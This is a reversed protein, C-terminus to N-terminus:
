STQRGLRVVNWSMPPLEVTLKEGRVAAGRALEPRVTDPEDATNCAHPDPGALLMHEVVHLQGLGSLVAHLELPQHRDRNVAFVVLEEREDHWVATAELAPVQGYRATELAPSEPEVRLVTGGRAHASAAAFPHFITQRWAPGGPETMIPAIANVLQALCAIRVRDANRLLTILLTGVVIADALNYVDEILRPHEAWERDVLDGLQSQYWVNWEDFSLNIRKDSRIKAQVHDCTAVVAGIFAEMDCASALFSDLDDGDPEYYAHLSIFDVVDYCQELVGAEWAAFTPMSRSSSGCAVLEISPDLQKMAKGAEAAIRGYEFPTKQGIQWPGDMENGLCWVSVGYADPNGNAARQDSRASGKPYNCYEVLARAADIGRTGLNVAMMPEVQALRAWQMFEDTGVQNSEITRWALDLRVPREDRPGIGDEWDYASVFNGGPYRVITVGLERTLDLVDRRFGHEDARPHTPEYIGTYVCRGLHEVFTGFLRPDVPAVAFSPDIRLKATNV